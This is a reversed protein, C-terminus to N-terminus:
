LICIWLLFWFLNLHSYWWVKQGQHQCIEGILLTPSGLFLSVLHFSECITIQQRRRQIQRPLFLFTWSQLKPVFVVLGPSLNVVAACHLQPSFKFFVDIQQLGHSPFCLWSLLFEGSILLLLESLQINGNVVKPASDHINAYIVIVFIWVCDAIYLFNPFSLYLWTHLLFHFCISHKTSEFGSM